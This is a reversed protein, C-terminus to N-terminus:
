IQKNTPSDAQTSLRDFDCIKLINTQFMEFHPTNTDKIRLLIISVRNEAYM